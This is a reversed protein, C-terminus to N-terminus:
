LAPHPPYTRWWIEGSGWQNRGDPNGRNGGSRQTSPCISYSSTWLPHHKSAPVQNRTLSGYHSGRGYQQDRCQLVRAFSAGLSIGVLSSLGQEFECVALPVISEVESLGGGSELLPTQQRCRPCGDPHSHHFHRSIRALSEPRISVPRPVSTWDMGNEPGLNQGM